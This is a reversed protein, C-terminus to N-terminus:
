EETLCSSRQKLNKINKLLTKSIKRVKRSKEGYYFRPNQREETPIIARM